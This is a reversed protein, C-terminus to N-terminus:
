WFFTESSTNSFNTCSCFYQFRYRFFKTGSFLVRIPIPYIQYPFFTDTLIKPVSVSQVMGVTRIKHPNSDLPVLSLEIISYGPPALPNRDEETVYSAERRHSFIQSIKGEKTQRIDAPDM